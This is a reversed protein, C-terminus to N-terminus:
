DILVGLLKKFYNLPLLSDNRIQIKQAVIQKPYLQHGLYQFTHQRQTKEPAVVLGWSKLAQQILSFAQLDRESPDALLTYHINYM